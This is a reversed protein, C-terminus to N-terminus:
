NKTIIKSSGKVLGTIVGVGPNITQTAVVIGGQEIDFTLPATYNNIVKVRFTNADDFFNVGINSATTVYHATKIVLSNDTDDYLEFGVVPNAGDTTNPASSQNDLDLTTAIYDTSTSSSVAGVVYADTDLVTFSVTDLIQLNPDTVTINRFSVADKTATIVTKSLLPWPQVLLEHQISIEINDGVNAPIAYSGSSFVADVTIGNVKFVGLIAVHPNIGKTMNFTVNGAVPVACTAGNIPDNAFSQGQTAFNAADLAAKNDADAQDITSTYTKSFQVSTGVQGSICNNRQFSQTVVKFYVPQQAPINCATKILDEQPLSFSFLLSYLGGGEIRDAKVTLDANTYTNGNHRIIFNTFATLATIGVAISNPLPDLEFNYLFQIVRRLINNREFGDKSFEEQINPTQDTIFSNFFCKYRFDNSFLHGNTDYRDWAEIELTIPHDCIGHGVVYFMETFYAVGDIVVEFWQFGGEALLLPIVAGSMATHNLQEGFYMFNKTNGNTYLGFKGANNAIILDYNYTGKIKFSTVTTSGIPVTFQFPILRDPNSLFKYTKDLNEKFRDQENLRNYVQLPQILNKM